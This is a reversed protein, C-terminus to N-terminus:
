QRPGVTGTEKLRSSRVWGSVTNGTKPNSYMVSSWGTKSQAYAILRDGPVVFVGRIPCRPDPASFFQLRGAGIVVESLPPSFMPVDKIGTQPEECVGALVPDALSLYALAIGVHIL